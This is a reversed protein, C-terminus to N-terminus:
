PPDGTHQRRADAENRAPRCDVIRRPQAVPDFDVWRGDRWLGDNWEITTPGAERLAELATDDNAALGLNVAVMVGPPRVVNSAADTEVPEGLANVAGALSGAYAGAALGGVIAVPGMVPTAAVGAIAGVAAGVAAGSVAGKGGGKAGQDAVEDGGLPLGHHRGPPNVVFRVFEERAFGTRLLAEVARDAHRDDDYVAAVVRSM